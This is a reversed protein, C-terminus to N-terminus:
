SASRRAITFYPSREGSAVPAAEKVGPVSPLGERAAPQGRQLPPGNTRGKMAHGIVDHVVDLAVGRGLEREDFPTPDAGGRRRATAAAEAAQQRDAVPDRERLPGAATGRERRPRWGRSGPSSMCSVVGYVGARRRLPPRIAASMAAPTAASSATPKM